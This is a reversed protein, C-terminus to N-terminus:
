RATSRPAGEEGLAILYQNRYLEYNARLKTEDLRIM